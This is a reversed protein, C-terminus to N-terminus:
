LRRAPSGRDRPAFVFYCYRRLATLARRGEVKIKRLQASSRSILSDHVFEIRGAPSVGKGVRIGRRKFGRCARHPACCAPTFATECVGKSCGRVGRLLMFNFCFRYEEMTPWAEFRSARATIAVSEPSVSECGACADFM